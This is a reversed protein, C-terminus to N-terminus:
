RINEKQKIGDLVRNNAHLMETLSLKLCELLYWRLALLKQAREANALDEILASAPIELISRVWTSELQQWAQWNAWKEDFQVSRNVTEQELPSLTLHNTLTGIAKNWSEDFESWELLLRQESEKATLAQRLLELQEHDKRRQNIIVQKDRELKELLAEAQERSEREEDRKDYAIAKERESKHLSQKLTVNERRQDELQKLAEDLRRKIESASEDQSAIAADLSAQLNDIRKQLENTHSQEQDLAAQLEKVMQQATDREENAKYLSADLQRIENLHQTEDDKKVKKLTQLESQLDDFQEIKRNLLRDREELKSLLDKLTRIEHEAKELQNALQYQDARALLTSTENTIADRLGNILASQMEERKDLLLAWLLRDKGDHGLSALLKAVDEEITEVSIEQEVRKCLDSNTDLWSKLLGIRAAPRHSADQALKAPVREWPLNTPRFGPFVHQQLYNNHKVLETIQKHDIGKALRQLDELSASYLITAVHDPIKDAM